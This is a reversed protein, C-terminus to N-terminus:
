ILVDWQSLLTALSAQVDDIPPTADIVRYRSIDTAARELYVARVREYFELTELEFRNRTGRQAVRAMGVQPPVDFIFTLDPRPTDQLWDELEAIRTLSLGRGGGQYAYTADAFRDCLVWRGSELAPGIVTKLHQTRAAFLLLLEADSTMTRYEPDLLLERVAEGLPTGGPERTVVVPKGQAELYARMFPVHTSKGGGEIGEVAIFRGRRATSPTRPANM